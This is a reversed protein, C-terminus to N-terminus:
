EKIKLWSIGGTYEFCMFTFITKAETRNRAAVSIIPIDASYTNSSLVQININTRNYLMIRATDHWTWSTPFIIKNGPIALERQVFEDSLPKARVINSRPGHLNSENLAMLDINNTVLFQHISSLKPTAMGNSDVLSAKIGLQQRKGNIAQQM